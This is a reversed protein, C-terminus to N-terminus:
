IQKQHNTNLSLCIKLIAGAAEFFSAQKLFHDYNVQFCDDPNM